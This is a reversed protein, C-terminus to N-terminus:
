NELMILQTWENEFATEFSILWWIIPRRRQRMWLKDPDIKFISNVRTQLFFGVFSALWRWNITVGGGEFFLVNLQEGRPDSRRRCRAGGMEEASERSNRARHRRWWRINDSDKFFFTWIKQKHWLMIFSHQFTIIFFEFLILSSFEYIISNQHM